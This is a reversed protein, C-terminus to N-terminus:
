LNCVRSRSQDPHNSLDYAEIRIDEISPNNVQDPVSVGKQLLCYYGVRDDRFDGFVFSQLTKPWRRDDLDSQSSDM